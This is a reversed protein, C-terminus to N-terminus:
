RFGGKTLKINKIPQSVKYDYYLNIKISEQYAIQDLTVQARCTIKKTSEKFDIFGEQSLPFCEFSSPTGVTEVDVRMINRNELDTSIIEGRGSNKLYIDLIIQNENGGSPVIVKEVKEVIVPAIDADMQQSTFRENLECPFDPNIEASKKFCVPYVITSSDAPYVLDVHINTSKYNEGVGRYVYSGGEPFRFSESIEPTVEGEYEIAPNLALTRCEKGPIGGVSESIEDWVCLSVDDVRRPLNNILQVIVNFPQGDFIQDRPPTGELIKLDVGGYRTSIEQQQCGSIALVFVLCLFVASVGRM